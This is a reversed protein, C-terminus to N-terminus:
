QALQNARANLDGFTISGDESVVAVADPTREVQAAFLEHTYGRKMGARRTDNCDLLLQEQEKPTLLSLESLRRNLDSAISELLCHYHSLLREMTATAFLDRAYELSARLSGVFKQHSDNIRQALPALANATTDTLTTTM